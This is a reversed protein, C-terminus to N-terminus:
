AAPPGDVFSRVEVWGEWGPWTARHAELFDAAKKAAVTADPVDYVAFGGVLEKTEVFPGDTTTIAGGALRVVAGTEIPMLGGVEVLSGNATNEAGLAGIAAFLGAPPEVTPRTVEHVMLMFKM